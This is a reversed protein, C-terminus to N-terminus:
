VSALCVRSHQRLPREFLLTYMTKHALVIFVVHRFLVVGCLHKRWLVAMGLSLDPIQLIHKIIRTMFVFWFRAFCLICFSTSGFFTGTFISFNAFVLLVCFICREPGSFAPM